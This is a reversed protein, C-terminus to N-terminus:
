VDAQLRWKIIMGPTQDLGYIINPGEGPQSVKAYILSGGIYEYYLGGKYTVVNPYLVEMEPARDITVGNVRVSHGPSFSKGRAAAEVRFEISVKGECPLISQDWTYISVDHITKPTAVQFRLATVEYRLRYANSSIESIDIPVCCQGASVNACKQTIQMPSSSQLSQLQMLVNISALTFSSRLLLISFLRM